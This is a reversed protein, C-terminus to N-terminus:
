SAASLCSDSISAAATRAAAAPAYRCGAHMRARENPTASAAMPANPVCQSEETRTESSAVSADGCIDPGREGTCRTAQVSAGSSAVAYVSSVVAPVIDLRSRQPESTSVDCSRGTGRTLKGERSRCDDDLSADLSRLGLCEFSRSSQKSVGSCAGSPRRSWCEGM